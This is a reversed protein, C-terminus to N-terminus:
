RIVRDLVCDATKCSDSVSCVMSCGDRDTNRCRVNGGHPSDSPSDANDTARNGWIGQVNDKLVREDENRSRIRRDILRQAAKGM